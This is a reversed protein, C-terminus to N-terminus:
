RLLLQLISQLWETWGIWGLDSSPSGPSTATHERVAGFSRRAAFNSSGSEVFGEEGRTSEVIVGTPPAAWAQNCALTSIVATSWVLPLIFKVPYRRVVPETRRRDRRDDM